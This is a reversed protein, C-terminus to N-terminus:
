LSYSFRGELLCKQREEAQEFNFIEVNEMCVRVIDPDYHTGSRENIEMLAYDPIIPMRCIEGYALVDFGDAIAAIRSGLPIASARLGFPYGKGDWREHHSVATEATLQWLKLIRSRMDKAKYYKEILKGGYTTHQQYVRKEAASLDERNDFIQEPILSFGIDHLRVANGFEESTMFAFGDTSERRDVKDWIRAALIATRECHERLSAPLESYYRELKIDQTYIFDFYNQRM